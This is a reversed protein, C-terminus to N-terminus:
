IYFAGRPNLVREVEVFLQVFFSDLIASDSFTRRVYRRPTRKRWGVYHAAPLYYPPDTILLDISHEPIDQMIELCDGCIITDIM